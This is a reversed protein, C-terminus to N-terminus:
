MNDEQAVRLTRRDASQSNQSVKATESVRLYCLPPSPSANDDYCSCGGYMHPLEAKSYNTHPYTCVNILQRHRACKLM